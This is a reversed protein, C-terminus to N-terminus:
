EEPDPDLAGAVADKADGKTQQGKGKVEQTKDGTAKGALENAKGKVKDGTSGM